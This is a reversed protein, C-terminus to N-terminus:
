LAIIERAIRVRNRKKIGVARIYVQPQPADEVDDYVGYNFMTIHCFLAICFLPSESLSLFCGLGELWGSLGLVV